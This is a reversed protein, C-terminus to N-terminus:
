WGLWRRVSPFRPQRSDPLDATVAQPQDEAPLLELISDMEGDLWFRQNRYIGGLQREHKRFGSLMLGLWLLTCIAVVQLLTLAPWLVIAGVLGTLAISGDLAAVESASHPRDPKGGGSRLYQFWVRLPGVLRLLLWFGIVVLTVAIASGLPRVKPLFSLPLNIWVAVSLATITLCGVTVGRRPFRPQRKIAERVFPVIVTLIVAGWSVWLVPSPTGYTLPPLSGFFALIATPLLSAVLLTYLVLQFGVRYIAGYLLVRERFAEPMLQDVALFYLSLADTEAKIGRDKLSKALHSSPIGRYYQPAGYGPDLFYLV